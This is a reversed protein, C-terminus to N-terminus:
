VKQVEVYEMNKYDTSDQAFTGDRKRRSWVIIAVVAIAILLIGCVLIAIWWYSMTGEEAPQGVGITPDYLINLAGAPFTVNVIKAQAQGLYKANLQATVDNNEFTAAIDASGFASITLDKAVGDVIAQKSLAFFVASDGTGSTLTVSGGAEATASGTGCVMVLTLTNSPNTYPYNAIEIISELSKPTVIANALNIRGIVGSSVFTVTVVLPNFLRVGQFSVGYLGPAPNVYQKLTWLMNKLLTINVINGSSDKEILSLYSTAVFGASSTVNFQSWDSVNPNVVANLGFYALTAVPYNTGTGVYAAGWIANANAYNLGAGVQISNYYVGAWLGLNWKLM